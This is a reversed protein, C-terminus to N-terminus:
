GAWAVWLWKKYIKKVNKIDFGHTSSNENPLTKTNIPTTLSADMKQFFFVFREFIPPGYPTYWLHIYVADYKKLKFLLIFRAWYAFLTKVVKRTWNGKLYIFSWFEEDIFTDYVIEYNASRIAPYYQEFKLRQSPARDKPYPTIFLIKKM